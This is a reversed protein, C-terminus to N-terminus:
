KWDKLGDDYDNYYVPQYDFVPKTLPMTYPDYVGHIGVPDGAMALRNEYSARQAIMEDRLRRAAQRSICRDKHNDIAVKLWKCIYFLGICIAFLIVLKWFAVFAAGLIIVLWGSKDKKHEVVFVERPM